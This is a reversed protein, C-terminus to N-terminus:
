ERVIEGVHNLNMVGDKVEGFLCEKQQTCITLFYAGPLSYDSGKMRQSSKRQHKSTM